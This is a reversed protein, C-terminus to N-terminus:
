QGAGQKFDLPVTRRAARSRRAEKSASKVQGSRRTCKYLHPWATPKAKRNHRADIGGPARDTGRFIPALRQNEVDHLSPQTTSLSPKSFRQVPYVPVSPEFGEREAM